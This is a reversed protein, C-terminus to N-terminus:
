LYRIYETGGYVLSARYGIPTVQALTRNVDINNQADYRIAVRSTRLLNHHEDFEYVIPKEDEDMVAEVYAMDKLEKMGAEHAEIWTAYGSKSAIIKGMNYIYYSYFTRKDVENLKIFAEELEEKTDAILYWVPNESDFLYYNGDWSVPMNYEGEPFTALNVEPIGARTYKEIKIKM